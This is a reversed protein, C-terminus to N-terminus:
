DALLRDRHEEVCADLSEERGAALDLELRVLHDGDPLLVRLRDQEFAPRRQQEIGCRSTGAPAHYGALEDPLVSGSAGGACVGAWRSRTRGGGRAGICGRRSRGVW